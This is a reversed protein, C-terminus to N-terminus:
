RSHTAFPVAVMETFIPDTVLVNGTVTLYCDTRLELSARPHQNVASGRLDKQRKEDYHQSNRKKNDKIRRM